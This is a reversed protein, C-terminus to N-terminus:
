YTGTCIIQQNSTYQGGPTLSDVNVLFSITYTIQGSSKPSSAISSGSSYYFGNPSDYNTTPGATVLGFQGYNPNTGVVPSTNAVLNVGFQEHGPSSVAPGGSGNSMAAISHGNYTPTTGVLQVAYGYSTYDIVSFQATATSAASSSFLNNFSTTGGSVSLTLAPDPTTQSGAETQYNTSKSTAVASDSTSEVSQYHTSTAQILGGSGADTNIFQYNTSKLDDAYAAGVFLGGGVVLSVLLVALRGLWTKM